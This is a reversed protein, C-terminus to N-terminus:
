FVAFDAMHLLLQLMSFILYMSYIKHPPPYKYYM